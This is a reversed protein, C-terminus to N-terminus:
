KLRFHGRRNKAWAMENHRPDLPREEGYSITELRSPDIGANVLYNKISQARRQGLAMNYEKTGREDCHGEILVDRDPHNRLWQVKERLIQRAKKTLSADDFGFYVNENVFEQRAAREKEAQLQRKEAEAEAKERAAIDEESIAEAQETEGAQRAKEAAETSAEGPATSADKHKACSFVFLFSVALLLLGLKLGLRQFKM